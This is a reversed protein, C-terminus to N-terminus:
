RQACTHWDRGSAEQISRSAGWRFTSRGTPHNGNSEPVPYFISWQYLTKPLFPEPQATCVTDDGMTRRALGLRHLQALTRSGLLSTNRPISTHQLNHGAVPYLHGWYGVCFFLPDLAERIEAAAVAAWIAALQDVMHRMQCLAIADDQQRDGECDVVGLTDAGHSASLILLRGGLRKQQMLVHDKGLRFWAVERGGGRAMGLRIAPADAGM